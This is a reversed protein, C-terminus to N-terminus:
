PQRDREPSANSDDAKREEVLCECAANYEDWLANGEADTGEVVVMSYTGTGWCLECDPDPVLSM